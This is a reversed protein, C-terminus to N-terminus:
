AGREPVDIPDDSGLADVQWELPAPLDVSAYDVHLVRRQAPSRARGSRHIALTKLVLVDGSRGTAVFIQSRRVLDAVDKTAARGYRHSGVAVELPGNNETCDDVFLRLTLMAALISVPPEVHVVGDKTSWPGFGQMDARQRVAITRDQHWPVSWNSDLSKDFTLVRVPKVHQGGYRSALMGIEGGPGILHAICDDIKFSRSGPGKTGRTEFAARLRHITEPSVAADRLLVGDKDLAHEPTV